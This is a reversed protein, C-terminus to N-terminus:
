RRGGKQNQQVQRILKCVESRIDEALKIADKRKIFGIAYQEGLYITCTQQWVVVTVFEEAWQEPTKKSM